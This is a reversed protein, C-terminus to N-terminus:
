SEDSSSYSNDQTKRKKKNRKGAAPPEVEFATAIGGVLSTFLGTWEQQRKRSERHEEQREKREIMYHLQM